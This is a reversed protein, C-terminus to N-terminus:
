CCLMMVLLLANDDSVTTVIPSRELCDSELWIEEGEHENLWELPETGYGCVDVNVCFSLNLVENIAKRNEYLDLLAGEGHNLHPSSEGTTASHYGWYKSM